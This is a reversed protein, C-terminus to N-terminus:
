ARMTLEAASVISASLPHETKKRTTEVIACCAKQRHTKKKFVVKNEGQRRSVNECEPCQKELYLLKILPNQWLLDIKRRYQSTLRRLM